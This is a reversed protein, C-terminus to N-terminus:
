HKIFPQGDKVSSLNNPIITNPDVYDCKKCSLWDSTWKWSYKNHDIPFEKLCEECGRELCLACEWCKPCNYEHGLIMDVKEELSEVCRLIADLTGEM